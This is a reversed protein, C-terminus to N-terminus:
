LITCDSATQYHQEVETEQEELFRNDLRKIEATERIEMTYLRERISLAQGLFDAGICDNEYDLLIGMMEDNRYGDTAAAYVMTLFDPVFIAGYPRAGECQQVLSISEDVCDHLDGVLSIDKDWIQLTHNIVATMALLISYAVRYSGCVRISMAQANPAAAAMTALTILRRVKPMEFQIVNYICQLQHLHKKPSRMFISVEALTGSELSVFSGQHYKVPRPTGITECAEWFWPGLEFQPNLFSALVALQTLGVMYPELDDLQKKLVAERFLVSIIGRHQEVSKRDIWYHCAFMVSVVQMKMMISEKPDIMTRRTAALAEGYRTLGEVRLRQCHHSRYLTVMAAVCSDLAANYGIQAVLEPILKGGFARIDFRCDETQLIHVLSSTIM